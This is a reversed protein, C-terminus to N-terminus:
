SQVRISAAIQRTREKYGEVGDQCYTLEKAFDVIGADNVHLAQLRGKVAVCDMLVRM